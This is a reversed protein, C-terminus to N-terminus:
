NTPPAQGGIERFGSHRLDANLGAAAVFAAHDAIQPVLAEGNQDQLRDLDFGICAHMQAPGLVILEIRSKDGVTRRCDILRADRWVVAQCLQRLVQGKDFLDLFVNGAELHTEFM